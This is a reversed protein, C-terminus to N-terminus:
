QARLRLSRYPLRGFRYDFYEDVQDPSLDGAQAPHPRPDPPLGGAAHRHHQPHALMAQFMRTYGHSRCSRTPQRRFYRDDRHRHPDPVRATVSKDLQPPTSAGSSAPTAASSSRTSSAASAQQRRRGRVDEIENWRSRAPPSALGRDDSRRRWRCGTSSTSPPALNIPIPLLRGDVSGLVRHTTPVGPPSSRCTTSAGVTPTPTSSTRATSTSSCARSTTSATMPTAASMRQPRDISSCADGWAPHRPARRPRQVPSAPAWSWGTLCPCRRRASPPAGLARCPSSAGLPAPATGTAASVDILRQAHGAWTQIGPCPRRPPRDVKDLWASAPRRLMAEGAAVVAQADAAISVLEDEGWPSVVDRIPTSIVPVGAALFEPTKTPSIYRTAENIAFPMFGADWGGLYAPLDKYAKGGLWHINAARPLSRPDIKVVPGLMVFQWDPKLAAVQGVLDLDMREDIVGFFGFRPGAIAAQDAPEVREKDRASLFHGVDISSPFAHVSHHRTKKAEYLSRGGTFVLDARAFLRRELSPLLRPANQFASLEDMCDYIRVPARVHSSFALMMPSYYWLVAPASRKALFGDLLHRLAATADRDVLGHPLHPVAITIGGPRESVELRPTGEGFIPEEFVVVAYRKAARSLLHQPRQWVFDWRL